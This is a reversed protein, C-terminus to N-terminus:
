SSVTACETDNTDSIEPMEAAPQSACSITEYIIDDVRTENVALSQGDASKLIMGLNEYDEKERGEAMINVDGYAM